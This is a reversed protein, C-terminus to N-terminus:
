RAAFCSISGDKTSIYISDGAAAMGDYVPDDPLSLEHLQTGDATSYIRMVAVHPDPNSPDKPRGTKLEVIMDDIWGAIFLRDTALVMARPQFKEEKQWSGGKGSATLVCGVPFWEEKLYRAFKQHFHGVQNYKSGKQQTNSVKRRQKLGTYTNGVSVSQESNFVILKGKSGGSQWQKRHFWSGDLFATDTRLRPKGGPKLQANFSSGRMGIATGDKSSLIDSLLGLKADNGWHGSALKNFHLQEGTQLALGYLRIGGDLNSSHGAAFYVTNEAILVSGHIWLPSALRSEWGIRREIASTRFRWALKGSQADLCYVSGDLCGFVCYGQAISPPSDIPGGTFYKWQEKGTASDLCYLTYGDRDAVYVNGGAIVPATPTDGTKFRWKKKPKAPFKCAISGSRASDGRYTPWDTNDAPSPAAKKSQGYAPGKELQSEVEIDAWSCTDSLAFFGNIKSTFYCQCPDPTAYLYGNAPMIGYQCIGRVWRHTRPQRTEMDIVQIGSHGLLFCNETAKNRYCRHHHQTRLFPLEEVIEGTHINIGVGTKGQNIYGSKMPMALGKTMPFTWATDGIAFLDGAAAFGISGKQEWLRKGDEISYGVLSNWTLCLIVDKYPVVTPTYGRIFLGQAPTKWPSAWLKEGTTYDVCHLQQNDLYFVRNGTACLSLPVQHGMNEGDLRYLRKGTEADCAIISKPLVPEDETRDWYGTAGDSVQIHRDPNGIVMFVIGEHYVLEETKETGEYTMLTKGTAADLKVAPANWGLTTYVYDGVSVLRRPLESPGARFNYLHTMWIPIDRKWLLKGNFADRAILKWHSPRHMVSITGEDYIYFIRGKSSTMASLSALADHHRVFKPGAYWQTHRPYRVRKDKSVGNGSANYMYHTWEDIEVPWPKTYLQRNGAKGAINLRTSKLEQGAKVAVVGNPVLVREIEALPIKPEGDIVMLNVMNDGYPLSEGDYSEASVKGYLGLSDIYSRAKAVNAADTDLGCVLYSDAAYLAATLKGDTCGVHIVLGGKVGAAELIEDGTEASQGMAPFLACMCFFLIVSQTRIRIMKVAM